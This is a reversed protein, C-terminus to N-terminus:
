GGPLAAASRRKLKLMPREVFHWSLWGLGYCAATVGAFTTWPSGGVFDIWLLEVPWGYLYVGYSIDPMEPLRDLVRLDLQGVYFLLYGGAVLLVAPLQEPLVLRVAVLVAVALGGLWPRFRMKAAFLFFCGGVLFAAGLRFTVHPEGVVGVPSHWSLAQGLPPILFSCFFFATLAAWIWSRRLLGAIGLLAVGLYCRFEYPITWLSGNEIVGETRLRVPPANPYGLHLLSVFFHFNIQHFYAPVAPILSGLAVTGVISAVVYGPYIRLVRKRLYDWLDPDHLWSQLILYGSLLFFGDVGFDGFSVTGTLRTLLERHRDGDILEPAHSLIVCTAFILRMLDFQRNRRVRILAFM